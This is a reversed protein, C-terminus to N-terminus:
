GQTLPVCYTVGPKECEAACSRGPGAHHGMDLANLDKCQNVTATRAFPMQVFGGYFVRGPSRCLSRGTDRDRLDPYSYCTTGLQDGPQAQKVAAADEQERDEGCGTYLAALSLTAVFMSIAAKSM